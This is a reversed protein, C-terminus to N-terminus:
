STHFPAPFNQFLPLSHTHSAHLGSGERVAEEALKNWGQELERLDASSVVTCTPLCPLPGWAEGRITPGDRGLRQGATGM